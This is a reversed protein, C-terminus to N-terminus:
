SAPNPMLCDCDPNVQKQVDRALSLLVESITPHYWPMELMQAATGRYYMIGALVHIVDDARPGLLQAGLIEGTKADAVLKAAGHEVDMTIARGTEPFKLSATVVDLGQKRAEAENLGLAALPPDSFVVGMNLRQEVEHEGPVQAAGLGAARGEWNAVHLLQKDGSADGAVFVTPNTTRMDRGCVVRGGEVAVGASELGLGDLAARRGTALVIVEAEVRRKENTGIHLRIGGDVKEVRGPPAPAMLELNPEDAIVREMEETIMPDAWSCLRSRSVLTVRTGMRSLFQSLELGIARSGVVIASEPREKLRLVDDSTWYPVDQVGPLPPISPVSGTAIVAGKVFRYTEGGAEVRDPGVFSARANVVEYGGKEISSVKARKFRAVKQDKNAMVAPFDIELEARGVGPTAHHRAHHALHAAHLMTKTPMCGMLICLGGLEGDNFMVTRAGADAAAKAAATGASGGGLVVVDYERMSSGYRTLSLKEM